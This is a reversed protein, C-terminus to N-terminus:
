FLRVLGVSASAEFDPRTQTKIALLNVESRWDPTLPYGLGLGGGTVLEPDTQVTERDTFIKTEVVNWEMGGVAQMWVYWRETFDWERRLILTVREQESDIFVGGSESERELHRYQLGVTWPALELGAELGWAPRWDYGFQNIEQQGVLNVTGGLRWVSMEPGFAQAGASWFIATVVPLVPLVMGLVIALIGARQVITRVYV